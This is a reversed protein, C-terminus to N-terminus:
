PSVIDFLASALVENGVVLETKYTGPGNRIADFAILRSDEANIRTLPIPPAIATHTSADVFLLTADFGTAQEFVVSAYVGSKGSFTTKATKIPDRPSQAEVMTLTINKAYPSFPTHKAFLYASVSFFAISLLLLLVSIIRFVNVVRKQNLFARFVPKTSNATDRTDRLQDFRVAMIHRWYM